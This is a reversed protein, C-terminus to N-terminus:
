TTKEPTMAVNFAHSIFTSRRADEAQTSWYLRLALGLLFLAIV